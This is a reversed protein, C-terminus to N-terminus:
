HHECYIFCQNLHQTYLPLLLSKGELSYDGYACFLHPFWDIHLVHLLICHYFYIVKGYGIAISKLLTIAKM